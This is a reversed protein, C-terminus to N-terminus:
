GFHCLQSNDSHSKSELSKPKLPKHIIMINHWFVVILLSLSFYEQFGSLLIWLLLYLTVFAKYKVRSSPLISETEYYMYLQKFISAHLNNEMSDFSHELLIVMDTRSSQTDQGHLQAHQSLQKEFLILEEHEVMRWYILQTM